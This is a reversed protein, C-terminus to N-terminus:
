ESGRRGARHHDRWQRDVATARLAHASLRESLGARRAVARVLEGIARADLPRADTALLLPEGAEPVIGRERLCRRLAESLRSSLAVTRERGDKGRVRVTDRRLDGVRLACVERPRLGGEVLLGLVARERHDVCAHLLAGTEEESLVRPLRTGRTDDTAM